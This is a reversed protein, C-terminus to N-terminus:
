NKHKSCYRGITITSLFALIVSISLALILYIVNEKLGFQILVNVVIMHYIYIGYSIDLPRFNTFRYAFGIGAFSIIVSYMFGYGINFDFGYFSVLITGLLFGFFYSVLIHKIHNFYKAILMGIVFLWCYRVITQCYLKEILFWGSNKIYTYIIEQLLASSIVIFIDKKLKSNELFKYFFYALIYFQILVCITWLSGNPTGCGYHRLSEPTWFQFITAQTVIFVLLEIPKDIPYFLILCMIEIIIAIWLEPYIRWFRKKLFQVYNQSNGISYWILFGSLIFFIPVGPFLSIIKILKPNIPINLHVLCHSLMVQFAALLRILNLSNIKNNM